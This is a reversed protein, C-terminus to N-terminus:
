MKVEIFDHLASFYEWVCQCKMLLYHMLGRRIIRSSFLHSPSTVLFVGNSFEVESGFADM